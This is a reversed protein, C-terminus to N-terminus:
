TRRSIQYTRSSSTGAYSSSTPTLIATVTISFRQVPRYACTATFSNGSNSPRSKCGPITKGNAKFHVKGAVSGTSVSLTNAVNFVLNNSSFTLTASSAGTNITVTTNSSNVVLYNTDAAKTAQIVCSGSATPTLTSGSVSCNGSVFSYTVSGTGSGGSTSLSLTSPFTVSTTTIVLASQSQKTTSNNTVSQGVLSIADNGASDQVANTDDGASPDTYSISVTQGVNITSVTLTITASSVSVGTVSIAGGSSRTVSFTSSAATTASLNESYTLTLSTGSSTVAASVFTPATTDIVLAKLGALSSGGALAPLTLTANNGASDAITGGNLVLASTSFYNLDSTTDGSQVVYTFVLVTSGSGSTYDVTRDTAGTELTIQPTGTVTVAESFTVRIDISAGAKYSGNTTNSSVQSVTPATGDIQLTVQTAATSLNGSLDQAAGAAVNLLLTGTVASAPTLSITYLSASITVLSGKSYYSSSTGTVALDSATFATVSESFTVTVTITESPLFTAKSTTISVTPVTVDAAPTTFSQITGQSTGISNTAVARYYYTTSANLGSLVYSFSNNSAGSYAYPTVTATATDSVLTASTSYTFRLSTLTSGNPNVTGNLTASTGSTSASGTSITPAASPTFSRIEGSNSGNVNSINVRFYYTTGTTLGTLNASIQTNTSGSVQNPTPTVTTVSSSLDSVTSYTFNLVTSTNGRANVTANLTASTSTVSTATDTAATPAPTTTFVESSSTVSGATNVATIRFYYTVAGTLGSIDASVNTTTNSTVSSPTANVTLNNSAFTPSTSYTFTLSSTTGGQANVTANLRATTEAISSAAVITVVPPGIPIFSLISGSTSGVNNTAKVRFYYTTGQTLGTINSSVSTASSGTVTGASVTTVDTSLSSDTGYEFEVTSSAGNANVTGNLTATTTAGVNTAASTTVSPSNAESATLVYSVRFTTSAGAALSDVKLSIAVQLDGTVPSGVSASWLGSSNWIDTALAQSPSCCSLSAGAGARARSDSSMLFIEAGSNFVAKVIASSGSGGRSTVTNTSTATNSNGSSTGTANDPDYGRVYYIDNITSATSNTLTIDVHLAQGDSPVISTQKISIGSSSSTSNWDVSQETETTQLNSVTGAVGTGEHTNRVESNSGVKLAWGEYQTGPCFYDGDDINTFPASAGVTAGWGNKQRDVRFGLCTFGASQHFFSPISSSGFAGNARVGVEVYKGQLFGQSASIQSRNTPTGSVASSATGVTGGDRGRLKISYATGNTLGHITLPAWTGAPNRTTWTIGGDISYDYNTAGTAASFNIEVYGNYGTATIISPASTVAAHVQNPPTLFSFIISLSVLVRIAYCAGFIPLFRLKEHRRIM